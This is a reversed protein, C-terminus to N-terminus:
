MRHDNWEQPAHAMINLAIDPPFNKELEDQRYWHGEELNRQSASVRFEEKVSSTLCHDERRPRPHQERGVM